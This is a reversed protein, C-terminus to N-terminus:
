SLLALKSSVAGTWFAAQARRSTFRFHRTSTTIVVLTIALTRFGTMMICIVNSSPLIVVKSHLMSRKWSKRHACLECRRWARSVPLSPFLVHSLERSLQRPQPAPTPVIDRPHELLEFLHLSRPPHCISRWVAFSHALYGRLPRHGSVVPLCCCSRSFISARFLCSCYIYNRNKSRVASM